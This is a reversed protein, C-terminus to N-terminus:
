ITAKSGTTGFPLSIPKLVSFYIKCNNRRVKLIMSASSSKSMQIDDYKIKWLMMNLEDEFAQRKRFNM